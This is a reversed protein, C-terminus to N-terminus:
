GREEEPKVKSRRGRRRIAEQARQQALEPDYKTRQNMDLILNGQDDTSSGRRLEEYITAPHCGVRNAIALTPVEKAYLEAIMLRDNYTLYKWAM